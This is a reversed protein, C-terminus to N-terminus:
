ILKKFAGRWKWKEFFFMLNQVKLEKVATSKKVIEDLENCRNM